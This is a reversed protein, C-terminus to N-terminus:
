EIEPQHACCVVDQTSRSLGSKLGHAPRATICISVLAPPCDLKVAIPGPRGIESFGSWSAPKDDARPMILFQRELWVIHRGWFGVVRGFLTSSTPWSELVIARWSDAHFSTSFFCSRPSYVASDYMRLLSAVGCVM